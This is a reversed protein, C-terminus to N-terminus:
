AGICLSVEFIICRILKSSCLQYVNDICKLHEDICLANKLNSFIATYIKNYYNVVKVHEDNIM